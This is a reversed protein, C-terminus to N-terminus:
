YLYTIAVAQAGCKDGYQHEGETEDKQKEKILKECMEHIKKRRLFGKEVEFCDSSLIEDKGVGFLIWCFPFYFSIRLIASIHRLHCNKKLDLSRTKRRYLRRKDVFERKPLQKRCGAFLFINNKKMRIFCFTAAKLSKEHRYVMASIKQGCDGLRLAALSVDKAKKFLFDRLFGYIEWSNKLYKKIDRPFPYKIVAHNRRM